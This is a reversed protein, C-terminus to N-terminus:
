TGIVSTPSLGTGIETISVNASVPTPYKVVNIAIGAKDTDVEFASMTALINPTPLLRSPAFFEKQYQVKLGVPFRKPESLWNYWGELLAQPSPVWAANITFERQLRANLGIPLRVPETLNGFWGFSVVPSPHFTLSQQLNTALGPKALSVPKSLENFWGISIVPNPHFTFAQQLPTAIGVKDLTKPKSLEVFWDMSPPLPYPLAAMFQQSGVGLGAKTKVIPESWAFHWKDETIIEATGAGLAQFVGSAAILAVSIAKFRVPESLQYLWKDASIVEGGTFVPETKVQYQIVFHQPM